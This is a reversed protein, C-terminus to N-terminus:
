CYKSPSISFYKKFVTSFYKPNDFGTLAAADTVSRGERLLSAARELRIIRVFDQPSQGTYSKLRVYFLTRSMAMERCLEDIGFSSDSLHSLVIGTAQEIFKRGDLGGKTEEHPSAEESDAQQEHPSSLTGLESSSVVLRMYKTHLGYVRWAGWFALAVLSIYIIWMWWSNWWPQSIHIVLRLEDLVAGSSRSVCRLRLVHSGPELNTFRISSQQDPYSWAGNGMQYQYAIDFQNRLNIAEFHLDFTRQSYALSLQKDNLMRYTRERFREDNDECKIGLLHLRAVYNIAQINDPNIVLAGMTSGYLINGDSLSCVAGESYERNLGYCYNVNVVKPPSDGEVFALGHETAIMVRGRRDPHISSIFNSPLGNDTSIRTTQHKQLSYIYVGGGDTGIWLEKKDNIFLTKVYLNTNADAKTQYDLQTVKSTQPEITWVGYATGVAIRGDPLQTIDHVNNLKYYKCGASTVQVLDGDLCGIWLSGEHDYFLSYVYNDKLVGDGATYRQHAGGKSLEIVGHGYTAALLSGQATPCFDTIVFGRCIHKWQRNRQEYISVGNDTGMVMDGDPVQAVCNVRDNLLSQDTGRAHQFIAPTSGVPRAIDIGGSYSGVVINGWSDTIISYIGNGHLVGHSGDNADFLLRGSYQNSADPQRSACWVGAGDVGVLMTQNNYPCLSRIPYGLLSKTGVTTASGSVIGKESQHLIKVAGQFCGLWVKNYLADYYGCEVADPIVVQMREEHVERGVGQGVNYVLLGNKTGFLLQRGTSIICNATVGKVVTTLEGDQLYYIGERMALWVGQETPLVDYLLVEGGLLRRVEAALQFCDQVADYEFVLGRDDFAMLTHTSDSHVALKLKITRGGFDNIQTNGLRYSKVVGNYRDVGYKTSWWVAQDDTQVISYVRQSYMGEDQGIHNFTFDAVGQATMRQCVFCWCVMLMLWYRCPHLAVNQGDTLSDKM